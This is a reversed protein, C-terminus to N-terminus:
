ITVLERSIDWLRKQLVKDYSAPSSRIRRCSVYYGGSQDSVEPATALFVSTKAGKFESIGFATKAVQLALIQFGKNNDGFRSNVFGPHLANVTIGTGHLKQALLYTFMLNCLKSQSYAAWGALYRNERYLDEFDVKANKHAVSSVNIIRAGRGMRLKDLLLHTLLFYNLHNLAFTMEIGDASYHRKFFIAGANNLLVDVRSLSEELQGALSRVDSQKSLDARFFYLNNNRTQGSIEDLVRRGKEADRGVLAVCHGMKALQRATEKGVGATAGTLVITKGNFSEMISAEM